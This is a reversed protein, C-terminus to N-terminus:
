AATLGIVKVDDARLKKGGLSGARPSIRNTVTQASISGKEVRVSKGMPKRKKGESGGDKSPQRRSKRSWWGNVINARLALREERVGL